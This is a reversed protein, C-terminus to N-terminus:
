TRIRGSLWAFFLDHGRCATLLVMMIGFLMLGNQLSAKESGVGFVDNGIVVGDLFLYGVFLVVFWECVTLRRLRSIGLM